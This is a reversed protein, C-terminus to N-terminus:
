QVISSTHDNSENRSGKHISPKFVAKYLRLLSEASAAAKEFALTEGYETFYIDQFEKIAQKSLM